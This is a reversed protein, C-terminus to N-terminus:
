WRMPWSSSLGLRCVAGCVRGHGHGRWGAPVHVLVHFVFHTWTWMWPLWGPRSTPLTTFLLALQCDPPRRARGKLENAGLALHHSGVVMRTRRMDKRPSMRSWSLSPLTGSGDEDRRAQAVIRSGWVMQQRRPTKLLLQRTARM